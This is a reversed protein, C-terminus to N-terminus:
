KRALVSYNAAFQQNRGGVAGELLAGMGNMAPFLSYKFLGRLWSYHAFLNLYVNCTRFFSAITSGEAAVEIEQFPGLLKTLGAPLFRWCEEASDIPYVAPVSLLFFGGPKTVRAIERIAEAPEPVYQLVQTCLVLDFHDSRFPLHEVRGVVDVLATRLPDVAVYEAVRGALLPRYPQIRGGVDLVNLKSSPLQRVWKEFIKRRSRLVLWNPNTISPYLRQQGEQAARAKGHDPPNVNGM